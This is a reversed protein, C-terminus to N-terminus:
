RNQVAVTSKPENQKKKLRQKRYMSRLPIAIVQRPPPPPLCTFIFLHSITLM